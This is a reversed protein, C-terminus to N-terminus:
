VFVSFYSPIKFPPDFTRCGIWTLKHVFSLAMWVVLNIWSRDIESRGRNTKLLHECENLDLESRDGCNANSHECESRKLSLDIESRDLETLLIAYSSYSKGKNDIFSLWLCSLQARQRITSYLYIMYEYRSVDFYKWNQGEPFSASYVKICCIVYISSSQFRENDWM